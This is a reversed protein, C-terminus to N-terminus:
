EITPLRLTVRNGRDTTEFALDGGFSTATWQVLWLGLGSAHDLPTEVAGALVATEADPIPPADDDVVVLADDGHREVSVRVWPEDAPNHLIANEVLERVALRVAENARVPVAGDVARDCALSAPGHDARVADVAEQALECLDTERAPGDDAGLAHQFSRAKEAMELVERAASEMEGAIGAVSEDDSEALIGARGAVVNLNNRLNHRLVRDLVALRQENDKLETLDRVVGVTGEFEEQPLLAIAAECARPNGDATHITIEVTRKSAGDDRLLGEITRECTTVDSDPLVLSAHSGVVEGEDFGTLDLLAQNVSTFCGDADLTYIPDGATQVITEYRRLEKKRERRDTVDRFYLTLGDESPYATMEFWVGLEEYWAEFTRSRQTELAAQHHQWFTGGVEDPFLDWLREGVLEDATYPLLDGAKSNAYTVTDDADLAIFGDKIRELTSELEATTDALDAERAARDLAVTIQDALVRGADCVADTYERDADAVSLVGHDGLSFVLGEDAALDHNTVPVHAVDTGEVYAAWDRTEPGLPDIEAVNVATVPELVEAADDAFWCSATEFELIDRAAGVGAEAVAERTRARQLTGTADHLREFLRMRERRDTVDRQFGLYHTVVGEDNAVPTIELHNWFPTGDARYNRLTVSVPEEAELAERITAVDAPDTHEGQLFRCNRGMVADRDYGTVKCFADNAFVLPQDDARADVISIGVGANQIAREFVHLRELRRDRETVNQVLVQTTDDVDVRGVSLEVVVPADAPDDVLGASGPTASVLLRAKLPSSAGDRALYAAVAERDDPHVFSAFREGSLAAPDEGLLEGAAANAYTVADDGDLVFLSAPLLEVLREHHATRERLQAVATRARLLSQVRRRMAPARLPTEVVEDVVDLTADTSSAVVDAHASSVVLLCPLFTESDAKRRALAPATARLSGQDLVFLDGAEPVAGPDVVRVDHGEGEFWERLSAVTREDEVAVVVTATSSAPVDRVAPAPATGDDAGEAM